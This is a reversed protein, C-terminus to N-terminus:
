IHQDLNLLAFLDKPNSIDPIMDLEEGIDYKLALEYTLRLASYDELAIGVSDFLTIQRDNERGKKIGNVLEHFEAYVLRKAESEKFVQIEGEDKAQDFYEVVIRCMPLISKELETKGKSDGGIANIHVGAEIWKKKLIKKHGYSATCDTIIDAGMTTEKANKCKVLKLDKGELNKELKEMAKADIDFFKVEKIDRVLQMARVQFESQVGTGIIALTRAHKRAMFDAALASMAATRLATLLTMESYMLPYGTDIDVLQGTAVISQKGIKPNGPHLNVYKFTFYKENDCIPMLEMVGNTVYMGPRPIISFKEWRSFDRKLCLILDKLFNDFGHLDILEILSGVTIIKM